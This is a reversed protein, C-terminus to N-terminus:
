TKKSAQDVWLFSSYGRRKGRGESHPIHIGIYKRRLFTDYYIEKEGGGSRIVQKLARLGSEKANREIEELRGGGDM